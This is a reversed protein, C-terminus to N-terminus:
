KVPVLDKLRLKKGTAPCYTNSDPKALSQAVDPVQSPLWFAKMEQLVNCLANMECSCGM